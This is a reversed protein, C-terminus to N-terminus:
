LLEASDRKRKYDENWPIDFGKSELYDGVKDLFDMAKATSNWESDSMVSTGFREVRGSMPNWAEFWFLMKKICEHVQVPTLDKWRPETERLVPIWAAFYFGRLNESVPNKEKEIRLEAGANDRVFQRFMKQHTESRFDIGGDLRAKVIFSTM